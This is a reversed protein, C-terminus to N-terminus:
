RSWAPSRSPWRASTAAFGAFSSSQAPQVRAVRAAPGSRVTRAGGRAGEGDSLPRAELPGDCAGRDRASGAAGRARARRAAHAARRRDGRDVRERRARARRSVAADGVAVSVADSRARLCRRDCRRAGRGGAGAVHVSPTGIVSGVRTLDPNSPRSPGEGEDADPRALEKALGWDIVVTEGFEGVLVNGPKLDRHIVGREHAYALADTVARLHPMLRLRDELSRAEFIADDLTRGPVLRMTYFTSGDPFTGAEYVSVIAPHQLAATIRVEREFRARLNHDLTEKIAVERGLRRDFARTIKGMGGAALQEGSEFVIPDVMPLVLLSRDDLADPEIRVALAM